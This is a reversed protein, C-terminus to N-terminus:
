LKELIESVITEPKKDIDIKIANNPPELADFQSKLLGPPMYHGKRDQMRSKILEYSGDLWIITVDKTKSQLINRYDKKLASCALVAGNAESWEKIKESLIQLWPLRDDDNLPTGGKMKKINAAPHFDDADFFPIQKERALLNGITTKGCGSVGMVIYVMSIHHNERVGM